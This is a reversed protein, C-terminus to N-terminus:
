DRTKALLHQRQVADAPDDLRRCRGVFCGECCGFSCLLYSPDPVPHIAYISISLASHVGPSFGTGDQSTALQCLTRCVHMSFHHWHCTCGRYLM